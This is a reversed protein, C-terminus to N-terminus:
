RTTVVRAAAVDEATIDRFRRNVFERCRGPVCKSRDGCCDLGCGLCNPKHTRGGNNLQKCAMDAACNGCYRYDWKKAAPRNCPIRRNNVGEWVM